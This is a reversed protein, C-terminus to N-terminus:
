RPLQGLATHATPRRANRLQVPTEGSFRKVERAMHSQDAYGFRVAAEVVPMTALRAAAREFRLISAATKPTVGVHRRFAASAHRHSAGTASILDTIGVAGSNRRLTAWMGAVLPDPPRSVAALRELAREVVRFREPWKSATTLQDHFAEGFAPTVDAVAFVGRSLEDGRVGLLTSAGLPTLYVQVCEQEADFSTVAWGPMLGAVFSTHRGVGTGDSLQLIELTPGLSLVLPVLSGAPQRRVVQDFALERYGVIGAVMGRLSKPIWGRVLDPGGDSEISPAM